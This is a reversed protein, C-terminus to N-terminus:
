ISCKASSLFLLWWAITQIYFEMSVSSSVLKMDREKSCLNVTNVKEIIHHQSSALSSPERSQSVHKKRERSKHHQATEISMTCCVLLVILAYYICNLAAM